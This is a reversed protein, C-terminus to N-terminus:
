DSKSCWAKYHLEDDHTHLTKKDICSGSLFRPILFFAAASMLCWVGTEVPKIWDTKL